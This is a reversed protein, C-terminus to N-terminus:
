ESIDYVTNREIPWINQRNNLLIAHIWNILEVDSLRILVRMHIIKVCLRRAKLQQYPRM